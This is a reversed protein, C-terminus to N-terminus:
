LEGVDLARRHRPWCIRQTARRCQNHWAPAPGLPSHGRRCLHVNLTESGGPLIDWCTACGRFFSRRCRQGRLHGARHRTSLWCQVAGQPDRARVELPHTPSLEGFGSRCTQGTLLERTDPAAVTSGAARRQGGVVPAHAMMDLLVGGSSSVLLVRRRGTKWLSFRLLYRADPLSLRRQHAFQPIM